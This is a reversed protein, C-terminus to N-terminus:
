HTVWQNVALSVEAVNVTVRCSGHTVCLGAEVTESRFKEAVKVCVGDIERSGVVRRALLWCNKGRPERVKEDIPRGADSDAHRGVNRRVVQGLDDVRRDGVDVVTVDRWLSQHLVDLPRVEWGCSCDHADGADAVGIQSATAADPDAGTSPNLRNALAALRDDDCLKGVM